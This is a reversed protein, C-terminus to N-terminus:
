SRFCSFCLLIRFKISSSGGSLSKTTTGPSLSFQRRIQFADRRSCESLSHHPQLPFHLWVGARWSCFGIYRGWAGHYIEHRICNYGFNQGRRLPLATILTGVAIREAPVASVDPVVRFMSTFLCDVVSYVCNAILKTCIQLRFKCKVAHILYMKNNRQNRNNSYLRFRNYRCGNICWM